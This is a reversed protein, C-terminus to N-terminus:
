RLVRYWVGTALPAESQSVRELCIKSGGPFNEHGALRHGSHRRIM